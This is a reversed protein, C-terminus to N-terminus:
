WKKDAEEAKKSLEMLIYAMCMSPTVNTMKFAKELGREMADELEARKV